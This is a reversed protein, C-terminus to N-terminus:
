CNVCVLFFFLCSIVIITFFFGDMWWSSCFCRRSLVIVSWRVLAASHTIWAVHKCFVPLVRSFCYQWRHLLFYFRPAVGDCRFVPVLGNRSSTRCRRLRTRECSSFESTATTLCVTGNTEECQFQRIPCPCVITTHSVYWRSSTPTVTRWAPGTLRCTRTRWPLDMKESHVLFVSRQTENLVSVRVWARM